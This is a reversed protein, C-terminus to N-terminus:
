DQKSVHQELILVRKGAKSMIAGTTMGGIGSGTINFEKWHIASSIIKYFCFYRNYHCRLRTSGTGNQFAAEINSRTKESRHHLSTKTKTWGPCFSKPNDVQFFPLCFFHKTLLKFDFNTRLILIDVVLHLWSMIFLPGCNQMSFHNRLDISLFQFGMEFYLSFNSQVLIVIDWTLFVQWAWRVIQIILFVSSFAIGIQIALKLVPITFLWMIYQLM